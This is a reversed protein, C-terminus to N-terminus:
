ASALMKLLEEGSILNEDTPEHKLIDVLIRDELADITLQFSDYFYTLANKFHLFEEDQITAFKDKFSELTDELPAIAKLLNQAEKVSINEVNEADARLLYSVEHLKKIAFPEYQKWIMESVSMGSLAGFGSLINELIM